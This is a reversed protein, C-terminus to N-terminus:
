ARARCACVGGAMCEARKDQGREFFSCNQAQLANARQRDCLM